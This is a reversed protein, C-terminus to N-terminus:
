GSRREVSVDDKSALHQLGVHATAAACLTWLARFWALSRHPEIVSYRTNASGARCTQRIPGSWSNSSECGSLGMPTVPTRSDKRVKRVM